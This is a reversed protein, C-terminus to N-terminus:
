GHNELCQNFSNVQVNYQDVLVKTADILQNTKAALSNYKNYDDDYEKRSSYRNQELKKKLATLEIQWANIQTRNNNIDAKLEASPSPCSDLPTGFEQVALWVTKGQFAGKGVAVGIEQFQKHLINARHGPSDMWAEVLKADGNFNGLALNEGVVIYEYGAAKILDAPAKGDPSEHEFYQQAFMDDLKAKAAENLRKNMRLAPLSAAARAENTYTIVGDRTLQAGYADLSGRLPGPLIQNDAINNLLRGAGPQRALWNLVNQPGISITGIIIGAGILM